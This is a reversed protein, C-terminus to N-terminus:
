PRRSLGIGFCTIALMAVGAAIWDVHWSHPLAHIPLTVVSAIGLVFAKKLL